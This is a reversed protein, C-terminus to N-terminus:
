TESVEPVANEGVSAIGYELRDFNTIPTSLVIESTMMAISTARAILM